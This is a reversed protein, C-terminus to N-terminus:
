KVGAAQYLEILENRSLNLKKLAFHLLSADTAAEKNCFPCKEELMEGSSEGAELTDLYHEKCCPGIYCACMNCFLFLENDADFGLSCLSCGLFTRSM